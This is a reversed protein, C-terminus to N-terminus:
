TNGGHASPTERKQPYWFYTDPPYRRNVIGQMSDILARNPSPDENPALSIRMRRMLDFWEKEKLTIRKQNMIAHVNDKHLASLVNYVGQVASVRVIESELGLYPKAISLIIAIGTLAGLSLSGIPIGFISYNWFSFSLVASTGAFLALFINLYQLKQRSYKLRAGYYEKNLEADRFEDYYSKVTSNNIEQEDDRTNAM